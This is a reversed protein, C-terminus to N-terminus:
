MDATLLDNERQVQRAVTGVKQPALKLHGCRGMGMILPGTSYLAHSSRWTVVAAKGAGDSCM